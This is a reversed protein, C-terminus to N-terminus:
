TLEPNPWDSSAERRWGKSSPVASSLPVLREIYAALELPRSMLYGQGYDGGAQRLFRFQERTEIGEAVVRLGLEQAMAIMARVIGNDPANGPVYQVFSRDIKLTSVPFDRLYSLNSYGTGFDDIAIRVGLEQLRTLALTSKEPEDLLASEVLEVGLSGPSLGNEQLTAVVFEVFGPHKIHAAPVNVNVYPSFDATEHCRSADACARRIVWESIPIALGVEEAVALFRAPSLVGQEPHRWRILAEAGVDRGSTLDVIPQYWLELEDQEIALRLRADLHLKELAQAHMGNHFFEHRARGLKKARYMATDADRLLEQASSLSGRDLNVGISASVFVTRGQLGYPLRLREQLRSVARGAELEDDIGSLLVVFEDGGVRAVLNQENELSSGVEHILREAIQILLHDGAEHGLSDNIKKFDDLDILLLGFAPKARDARLEEVRKLLTARNALGTLSDLEASARLEREARSRDLAAGLQVGWDGPTGVFQLHEFALPAVVALLGYDGGRGRPVGAISVIAGQEHATKLMELPPFNEPSLPDANISSFSTEVRSGYHGTVTLAIPGENSKPPVSLRAPALSSATSSDVRNTWLACFAQHAGSWRIWDLDRSPDIGAQSLSSSLRYAAETVSEYHAVRVREARQWQHMLAVRLERLIGGKAAQTAALNGWDRYTAELLEMVRIASEADSAHALFGAWWGGRVPESQKVGCANEFLALAIQEAEPWDSRSVPAVRNRGAFALLETTLYQVQDSSSSVEPPISHSPLCGCSRRVVPRAAVRLLQQPKRKERIASLLETVACEAAEAFNQQVTTLPPEAFQAADADDFGVIAFDAPVDVGQRLFEGMAGLALRDTAAVLATPERGDVAPEGERMKEHRQRLLEQAVERGDLEKHHPTDFVMEDEVVLGAARMAHRYGELREAVDVHGLNGAFVIRRHGHGILHETIERAGGQNDPLVASGTEIDPKSHLHVITEGRRRLEALLAPHEFENVALWGDVLAGAVVDGGRLLELGSTEFAIAIADNSCVSQLIGNVVSGYYFGGSQPTLVGIVTKPLPLTAHPM